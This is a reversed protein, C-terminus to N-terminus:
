RKVRSHGTGVRPRYQRVLCDRGLVTRRSALPTGQGDLQPAVEGGDILLQDDDHYRPVGAEVRRAVQQGAGNNWRLGFPGNGGNSSCSFGLGPTFGCRGELLRLPVTLAAGGTITACFAEGLVRIASGGTPLALAAPQLRWRDSREGIDRAPDACRGFPRSDNWARGLAPTRPYGGRSIYPSM